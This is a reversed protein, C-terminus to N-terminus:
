CQDGETFCKMSDKYNEIFVERYRFYSRYNNLGCDHLTWPPDQAPVVVRYGRKIFEMSQSADYFDFGGFIDERWPIDYQTAMLFGDVAEVDYFANNVGMCLNWEILGSGDYAYAAGVRDTNWMIGNQPLTPCGVMGILGIHSDAFLSIIHLIFDRKIIMVDQHLYIKYRSDTSNMARNYGEAMSAADTIRKIEIEYGEPIDLRDIYLCAEDAARDDNTCMIFSIKKDNM